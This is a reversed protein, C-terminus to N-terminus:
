SASNLYLLPDGTSYLNEEGPVYMMLIVTSGLATPLNYNEDMTLVYLQYGDLTDGHGKLVNDSGPVLNIGAILQVNEDNYVDLLWMSKQGTSFYTRFTLRQGALEVTVRRAGDNTVPIAVPM